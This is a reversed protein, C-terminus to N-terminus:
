EARLLNGHRYNSAEETIGAEEDSEETFYGRRVKELDNPCVVAIWEGFPGAHLDAVVYAGDIGNTPQFYIEVERGTTETAVFAYAFADNLDTAVFPGIHGKSNLYTEKTRTM